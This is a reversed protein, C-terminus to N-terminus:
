MLVHLSFDAAIRFVTRTLTYAKPWALHSVDVTLICSIVEKTEGGPREGCEIDPTPMPSVADESDNLDFDIASAGTKVM